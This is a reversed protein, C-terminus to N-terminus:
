LKMIYALKFYRKQPPTPSGNQVEVFVNAEAATGPNDASSAVSIVFKDTLDPTGFSGDCLGWGVPISAITGSWMIIGGAPFDNNTSQSGSSIMVWQGFPPTSPIPDDWKYYWFNGDDPEYILLGSPLTDNYQGEMLALQLQTVRPLMVGKSPIGLIGNYPNAVDLIARHDPTTTGIGVNDTQAISLHVSAVLVTLVASPRIFTKLM